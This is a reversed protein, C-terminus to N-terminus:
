QPYQAYEYVKENFALIIGNAVVKAMEYITNLRITTIANLADKEDNSVIVTISTDGSEPLNKNLASGPFIGNKLLIIDGVSGKNSIMSDIVCIPKNGHRLKIELLTNEINLAHVPQKITGYIFHTKHLSTSMLMSGVIPALVDGICKDTGIFLFISQTDIMNKIKTALKYTANEDKYNINKDEM